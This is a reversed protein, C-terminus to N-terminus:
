GARRLSRGTTIDVVGAPSPHLIGALRAEWLAFGRRKEELYAHQDYVRHLGPQAHAIMQERVRDEISLASLSTRMTRRLDHLVWGSVGSLKDLREKTKPFGNVPKAGSTTTFVFDGAFRPLARLLGLADPALPVVHTRSSKM